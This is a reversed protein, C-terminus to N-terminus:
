LLSHLGLLGADHGEAINPDILMGQVGGPYGASHQGLLHLPVLVPNQWPIEIVAFSLPLPLIVSPLTLFINWPFMFPHVYAHGQSAWQESTSAEEPSKGACPGQNLTGKRQRSGLSPLEVAGQTREGPSM